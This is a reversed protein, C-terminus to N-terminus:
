PEEVDMDESAPKVSVNSAPAPMGTSASSAALTSGVAKETGDNTPADTVTPSAEAQLPTGLVISSSMSGVVEPQESRETDADEQPSPPNVLTTGGSSHQGFPYNVGLSQASNATYLSSVATDQAANGNSKLDWATNGYGVGGFGLNSGALSLRQRSFEDEEDTKDAENDSDVRPSNSDSLAPSGARSYSPLSSEAESETVFGDDDGDDTPGTAHQLGSPPLTRSGSLGSASPAPSPARSAARSEAEEAKVRSIGGIPRATRRRYFLLYAARSQQDTSSWRLASHILM